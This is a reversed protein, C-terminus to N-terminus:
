KRDILMLNVDNKLIVWVVADAMRGVGRIDDFILGFLLLLVIISPTLGVLLPREMVTVILLSFLTILEEDLPLKLLLLLRRLV